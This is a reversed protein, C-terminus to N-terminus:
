QLLNKSNNDSSLPLPSAPAIVTAKTDLLEIDLRADQVIADGDAKPAKAEIPIPNVFLVGLDNADYILRSFRKSYRTILCSFRDINM